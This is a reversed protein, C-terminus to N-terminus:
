GNLVESLEIMKGYKWIFQEFKDHEPAADEAIMANQFVKYSDDVVYLMQGETYEWWDGNANAIYITM